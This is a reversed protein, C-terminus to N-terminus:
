QVFKEIEPKQYSNKSYLRKSVFRVITIMFFIVIVSIEMFLNRSIVAMATIVKSDTSIINDINKFPYPHKGWKQVVIGDNIYILGGNIRNLSIATKYDTYLIEVNVNTIGSEGESEKLQKRGNEQIQNFLAETKEPTEGSVVYFDAGKSNIRQKLRTIKQVQRKSIGGANYLSVFFLPKESHTLSETIYENSSNKLSFDPPGSNTNKDSKNETTKTDIYTWTSDPLNNLDFEKRIGGKEYIFLSTYNSGNGTTPNDSDYDDTRSQAALDTGPKFSGFDLLPHITLSYISIGLIFVLYAIIYINGWKRTAIPRCKGRQLFLFFILPLLIINKLFTEFATLKIIDGFCGCDSVPLVTYNLLTVISFFLILGLAIKTFLKMRLGKLICVGVLFEIACLLIGLPLATAKLFGIHFVNLYEKIKLETGIPDVAKFYGSIILVVGIIIRCLARLYRM